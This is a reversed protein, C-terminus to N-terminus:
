SISTSIKAADGSTPETANDPSKDSHRIRTIVMSSGCDGCYKACPPNVGGCVACNKPVLPFIFFHAPKNNKKEM